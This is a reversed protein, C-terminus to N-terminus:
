TSVYKNHVLTICKHHPKKRVTISLLLLFHIIAQQYLTKHHVVNYIVHMRMGTHREESQMLLSCEHVCECQSHVLMTDDKNESYEIFLVTTFM